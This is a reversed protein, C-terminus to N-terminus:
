DNQFVELMMRIVARFRHKRDKTEGVSTFHQSAFFDNPSAPRIFRKPQQGLSSRKFHLQTSEAPVISLQEFSHERLNKQACCRGSETEIGVVTRVIQFEIESRAGLFPEVDGPVNIATLSRAKTNPGNTTQYGARVSKANGPCKAYGAEGM